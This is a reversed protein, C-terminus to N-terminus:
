VPFMLPGRHQFLQLLGASPQEQFPEKPGSGEGIGNVSEGRQGDSLPSPVPGHRPCGAPSHDQVHDTSLARYVPLPLLSVLAAMGAQRGPPPKM